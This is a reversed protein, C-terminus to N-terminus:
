GPEPLHSVSSIGKTFKENCAEQRIFLYFDGGLDNMPAQM